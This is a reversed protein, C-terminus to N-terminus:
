AHSDKAQFLARESCLIHHNNILYCYSLCCDAQVSVSGGQKLQTLQTSRAESYDYKLAGVRRCSCAM